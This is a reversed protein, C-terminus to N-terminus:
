WWCVCSCGALMSGMSITVCIATLLLMGLRWLTSDLAHPNVHDPRCPPLLCFCSVKVAELKDIIPQLATKDRLPAGRKYATLLQPQAAVHSLLPALSGDAVAQMLHYQHPPLCASLFPM